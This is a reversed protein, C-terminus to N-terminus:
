LTTTEVTTDMCLNFAIAIRCNSQLRAVSSQLLQLAYCNAISDTPHYSRSGTTCSCVSCCCMVMPTLLSWSVHRPMSCESVAHNPRTSRPRDDCRVTLSRWMSAAALSLWDRSDWIKRSSAASRRGIARWRGIDWRFRVAREERDTKWRSRANLFLYCGRVFNRKALDGRLCCRM